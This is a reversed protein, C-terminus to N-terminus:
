AALPYSSQPPTARAVAALYHRRQATRTYDSLVTLVLLTAAFAGILSAPDLAAPLDFGATEAALAVPLAAAFFLAILKLSTKM